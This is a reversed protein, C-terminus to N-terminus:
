NCINVACIVIAGGVAAVDACGTLTFVAAVAVFGAFLWARQMPTM